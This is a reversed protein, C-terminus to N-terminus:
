GVAVLDGIAAGIGLLGAIVSIAVLSFAETAEFTPFFKGLWTPVNIYGGVLDIEPGNWECFRRPAFAPSRKSQWHLCSIAM